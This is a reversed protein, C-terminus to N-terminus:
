LTNLAPLPKSSRGPLSGASHAALQKPLPCCSREREALRKAANRADEKLVADTAPSVDFLDVLSLILHRREQAVRYYIWKECKESDLLGGRKIVQVHSSVSSQPMDLIDALECVCMPEGILLQVIRWRTEDALAHMTAVLSKM